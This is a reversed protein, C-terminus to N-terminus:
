NGSRTQTGGVLELQKGLPQKRLYEKVAQNILWSLSRDELQRLTTLKRHDEEDLSITLRCKSM